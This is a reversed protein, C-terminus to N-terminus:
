GVTRANGSPVQQSALEAIFLTNHAWGAYAGFREVFATEVAEMVQFACRRPDRHVLLVPALCRM